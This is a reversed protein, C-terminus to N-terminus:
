PSCKSCRGLEIVALKEDYLFCIDITRDRMSLRSVYQLLPKAFEAYAKEATRYSVRLEKATYWYARKKSDGNKIYRHVAAALRRTDAKRPRGDKIKQERGTKYWYQYTGQAFDPKSMDPPDFLEALMRRSSVSLPGGRLVRAVARAAENRAMNGSRWATIITSLERDRITM